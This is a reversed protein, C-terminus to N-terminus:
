ATLLPEYHEVVPFPDYFHHLLRRWRRYEASNRFGETHDTLQHWEVLLFYNGPREICRCLTLGSGAYISIISKAEAFAAEFADEQGPVVALVAHELIM